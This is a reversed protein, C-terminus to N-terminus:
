DCDDLSFATTELSESALPETVELATRERASSAECAKEEEHMEEKSFLPQPPAFLRSLRGAAEEGCAGHREFETVLKSCRTREEESLGSLSLDFRPTRGLADLVDAAFRHDVAEAGPLLSVLLAEVISALLESDLSERFIAPLTQPGVRQLLTVRDRPRNRLRGWQAEFAYFSMAAAPGTTALSAATTSTSSGAATAVTAKNATNDAHMDAEISPQGPPQRQWGRLRVSRPVYPKRETLAAGKSNSGSSSSGGGATSGHALATSASSAPLNEKEERMTSTNEVPREENPKAAPRLAEGARQVEQKVQVTLRRTPMTL